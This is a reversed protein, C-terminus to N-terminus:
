SLFDEYSILRCFELKISIEFQCVRLTMIGWSSRYAKKVIFEIWDYFIIIPCRFQVYCYCFSHMVLIDVRAKTTHFKHKSTTSNGQCLKRIFNCICWYPYGSICSWIVSRKQFYINSQVRWKWLVIVRWFGKSWNFNCNVTCLIPVM